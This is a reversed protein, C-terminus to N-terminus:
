RGRTTTAALAERAFSLDWMVLPNFGGPITYQARAIELANVLGAPTPIPIEAIEDIQHAVFRAVEGDNAFTFHEALDGLAEAKTVELLWGPETKARRCADFMAFVLGRVTERNAAVYAETLTPIIYGGEFAFPPYGIPLLGAALAADGYAPQMFFADCRGDVVAKWMGWRGTDKETVLVQEVDDALGLQRLVVGPYSRQPGIDRVAIKKGRLDELSEIGPRVLLWELWDHASSAVTVFPEGAARFRQLAWYNEAIADVEGRKLKESWDEPGTQRHRVLEIELDYARACRALGHLYPLRDVDRYLLSLSRL